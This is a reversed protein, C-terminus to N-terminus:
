NDTGRSGDYWTNLGARQRLLSIELNQKKFEVLSSKHEYFENAVTGAVGITFGIIAGIWGGTKAGAITMMGIGIATNVGKRIENVRRQTIYDGTFNGINSLSYNVAQTVQQKVFHMAEHEVYKGLNDGFFSGNKTKEKAVSGDASRNDSITIYLENNEM